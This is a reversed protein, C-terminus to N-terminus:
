PLLVFRKQPLGDIRWLGNAHALRRETWSPDFWDLETAMRDKRYAQRAHLGIGNAYGYWGNTEGRPEFDANLYGLGEGFRTDAYTWISSLESLTRRFTTIIRSLGGSVHDKFALRTLEYETGLQRFSAMGHWEHTKPHRLGLYRFGGAFGQAHWQNMFERAEVMSPSEIDLERAGISATAGCKAKVVNLVAESRHMWEYDFTILAAPCGAHIDVLTTLPSSRNSMWFTSIILLPIAKPLVLYDLCTDVSIGADTLKKQVLATVYRSHLGQASHLRTAEPLWEDEDFLRKQKSYNCDQCALLVNHPGNEGGRSLPVIHEITEKNNLPANCYCCCHDQWKHLWNLQENTIEGPSGYRLAYYRARRAQRQARFKVRKSRMWEKGEPTQYFNWMRERHYKRSKDLNRARWLKAATRRKDPNKTRYLKTAEKIRERYVPDTAYLLQMRAKNRQKSEASRNAKNGAARWARSHEILAKRHQERYRRNYESKAERNQAAAIRAAARRAEVHKEYNAKNKLRMCDKCYALLGDRSRRDRAFATPEKTQLCKTCTKM